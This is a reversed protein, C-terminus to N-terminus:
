EVTITGTIAPRLHDHFRWTGPKDFTFIWVQGPKLKSGPDFEPYIGHTPHINSAPWADGSQSTVFAIRTGSLITVESPVYGTNSMLVEVADPPIETSVTGSRIETVPLRHWGLVLLAGTVLGLIVVLVWKM